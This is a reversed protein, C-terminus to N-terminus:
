KHKFRRIERTIFEDGRGYLLTKRQSFSQQYKELYASDLISEERFGQKKVEEDIELYINETGNRFVPLVIIVAGSTKLIKAFEKFTDRYLAELDKKIGSIKQFSPFGTLAPGLFPETVVADVSGPKLNQSISRVDSVFTRINTRQFEDPYLKKMWILNKRTDNIAEKRIDSGIISQYGMIAAESLFTGSGCFPDLLTATEDLRAFNIMAKALKPPIMGSRLDRNPRDYDRQSFQGFEQVTLTKGVYLNDKAAIVVIEAGHVLLGNKFVSVSSLNREKIQVFGGSHNGKKLESKIMMNLTKLLKKENKIYDPVGDAYYLSIGFRIKRNKPDFYKSMLNDYAFNEELGQGSDDVSMSSVLKGIKVTGGLIHQMHATNIEEAFKIIAAENGTLVTECSLKMREAVAMIESLSLAPSRGLIFIYTSTDM